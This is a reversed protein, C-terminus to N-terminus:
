LEQTSALQMSSKLLSRNITLSTDKIIITYTTDVNTSNRAGKTLITGKTPIVETTM